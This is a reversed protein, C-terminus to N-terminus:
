IVNGGIMFIIADAKGADGIHDPRERALCSQCIKDATQGEGNQDAIAIHM